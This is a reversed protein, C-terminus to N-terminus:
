LSAVMLLEDGMCPILSMFEMVMPNMPSPNIPHGILRFRRRAPARIKTNARLLATSSPAALSPISIQEEGWDSALCTPLPKTM